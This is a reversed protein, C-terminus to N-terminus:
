ERGLQKLVGELRRRIQTQDNPEVPLDPIREFLVEPSVLGHRLADKAFDWDRDRGAVSKALVLDHPELCLATADQASSVRAPIRVSVLRDEWGVPAKATEPGVGQAYYGHTRQFWSGDGLSGEIEDAKEPHHLPYLDAEQSRLMDEPADPFSGLIAQSGIVVLESEGSVQAAAALVHDFDERRM